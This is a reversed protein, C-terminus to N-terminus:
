ASASSEAAVASHGSDYFHKRYGSHGFTARRYIEPTSDRSRLNRSIARTRYHVEHKHRTLTDGLHYTMIRHNLQHCMTACRLRGRRSRACSILQRNWLARGPRQNANHAVRHLRLVSSKQNSTVHKRSLEGNADEKTASPLFDHKSTVANINRSTLFAIQPSAHWSNQSSM